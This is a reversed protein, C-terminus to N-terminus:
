WFCMSPLTSARRRRHQRLYVEADGTFGCLCYYIQATMTIWLYRRKVDLDAVKKFLVEKKVAEQCRTRRWIAHVFCCKRKPSPVTAVFCAPGNWSLLFFTRRTLPTLDPGMFLRQFLLMPKFVYHLGKQHMPWFHSCAASLKMVMIHCPSSDSLYVSGGTTCHGTASVICVGHVCEEELWM